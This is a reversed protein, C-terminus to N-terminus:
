PKVVVASFRSDPSALSLVTATVTSDSATHAGNIIFVQNNAAAYLRDNTTDVFLFKGPSPLTITRDPTATSTLTSASNFVQIRGNFLAVYLRDNLTDLYFSEPGQAFTLTRDAPTTFGSATSVTSANDFRFIRLGGTPGVTASGVYLRNGADVAIGFPIVPTDSGFDPLITRDPTVTGNLKSAGNLVQVSGDPEAVYLRDNATDLFLNFFNVLSLM